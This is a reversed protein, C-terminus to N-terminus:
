VFYVKEDLFAVYKLKVYSIFLHIVEQRIEGFRNKCALLESKVLYNEVFCTSQM